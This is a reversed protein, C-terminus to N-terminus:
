IKQLIKKIMRQTERFDSPLMSESLVPALAEAETQTIILKEVLLALLVNFM